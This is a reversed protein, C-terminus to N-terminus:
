QRIPMILYLYSADGVPRFVGPRKDSVLQLSVENSKMAQLGELLYRYNFAIEVPEGSASQVTLETANEGLQSNASTVKLSKAGPDLALKVDNVGSRVFLSAGRVARVLDDRLITASSSFEHPVLQQYDPYQGAVLRSIVRSEGFKWVVQTDNVLVEVVDKEGSAGAVRVVEQVARLPIIFHQEQTQKDGVVTREALRYSDTGVVVVGRQGQEMYVGSIEPRSEEANVAFAVQSLAVELEVRPLHVVSGQELEPIVPFEDTPLGRIVTRHKGCVLMLNTGELTIDVREHPFLGVLDALLRGQVTIAGESEVKGRVVTIIAVELNTAVLELGVKTTRLLINNLIPLSASRGAIHAVLGLGSTFNEQTCSFKM